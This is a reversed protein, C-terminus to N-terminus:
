KESDTTSYYKAKSPPGGLNVCLEVLEASSQFAPLLAHSESECVPSDGETTPSELGNQKRHRQLEKDTGEVGLVQKALCLLYIRIDLDLIRFLISNVFFLHGM